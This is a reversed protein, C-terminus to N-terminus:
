CLITKENFHHLLLCMFTCRHEQVDEAGNKVFHGMNTHKGDNMNLSYKSARARPSHKGTLNFDEESTRKEIQHEDVRFRLKLLLLNASRHQSEM